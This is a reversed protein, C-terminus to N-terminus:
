IIARAKLFLYLMALLVVILLYPLFKALFQAGSSTNEAGKGVNDAVNGASVWLEAIGHTTFGQKSFYNMFERDYKCWNYQTDISSQKEWQDIFIENAQEKGYCEVLKKHWLMWQNCSWGSDLWGGSIDPMSNCTIEAM